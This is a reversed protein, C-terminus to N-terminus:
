VSFTVKLLEKISIDGALVATLCSERLSTAGESEGAARIQDVSAGSDILERIKSTVPLIEFVAKRGSYGTFNCVACGNEFSLETPESLGLINLEHPTAIRQTKCHPCLLKVLRQSIIAVVSSSVLYGPIKMNILRAVAGPADNTHISSLVIHGTVAASIAISAAEEDRIEGVMIIDPDQRLISRLGNAFTLGVKNNVQIQNIGPMEYEVPDEITIANVSPANIEKLITYLTTTKGSGTPGCSLIMGHPLKLIKDFLVRNKDDMGLQSLTLAKAAGGLIRLAISEGNITPMSSVRVDIARNGYAFSIRGDQPLRHEVINMGATIKLRTVLSQHAAPTIESQKFLQGDVRMRVITKDPHPEIHIDSAGIKVSLRLLTNIYKVVPTGEVDIAELGSVAINEDDLFEENVHQSIEATSTSYYIRITEEIDSYTSLVPLINYGTKLRLDELIYFDMPEATAVVLSDGMIDIPILMHSQAYEESVMGIADRKVPYGRLEIFKVKLRSELALMLDKESVYSNELLIDGLRRSPSNKQIELAYDLQEQTLLGNAILLKGIPINPM